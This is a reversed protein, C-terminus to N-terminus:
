SKSQFVDLQERIKKRLEDDVFETGRCRRGTVPDNVEGEKFLVQSLEHEVNEGYLQDTKQVLVLDGVRVNLNKNDVALKNKKLGISMRDVTIKTGISRLM